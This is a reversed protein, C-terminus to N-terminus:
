GQPLAELDRIHPTVFREIHEIARKGAAKQKRESDPRFETEERHKSNYKAQDEM